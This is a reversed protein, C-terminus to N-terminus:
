YRCILREEHPCTPSLLFPGKKQYFLGRAGSALMLADLNEKDFSPVATELLVWHGSAM